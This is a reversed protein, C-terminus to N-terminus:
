VEGMKAWLKESAKRAEASVDDLAHRRDRIVFKGNVMVSEVAAWNIGFAFHWALNESTLPTPSEYDLVILDAASGPALSGIDNGFAQSALRQNNALVRLWSDAGVTLGEDRGKFFASRAEEFMDAGIGDTGLVVREGFKEVPAYGVQNNMNSRPNHAFWVGAARAIEIDEDSLHVGHALITQNNLAGHKALREVVGLGHKERADNVDCMDEAVHIHLGADLERMLEACRTLSEDNLTFSAHAGVLGRFLDPSSSGSQKTWNLFSRNEELGRDREAIGGRDTVEYCLVARLGVKEIAERVIQLSGSIHSPSAHHDFLCTTGARAADMAGAMASWYITEEDLARDLRWWVLELIEKFNTPTRPPAPMGRALASYLHTHACVMGPMVLKASLDIIEEDEHAELSSGREIIKGGAIRLDGREVRSPDLNVLLASKFLYSM